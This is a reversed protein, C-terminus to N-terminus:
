LDQVAGGPPPGASAGGAAGGGGGGGGGSGTTQLASAGPKGDGGSGSGLPGVLAGTDSSGCAAIWLPAALCAALLPLQRTVGPKLAHDPGAVAPAPFIKFELRKDSPWPPWPSCDPDAMFRGSRGPDDINGASPRVQGM